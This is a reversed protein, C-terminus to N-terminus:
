RPDAPLQFGSGADRNAQVTAPIDLDAVPIDHHRPGDIVTLTSRTTLYNHIKEPARGDKFILTTAVPEPVNASRVVAAPRQQEAQYPPPQDQPFSYGYAPDPAPAAYPIPPSEAYGPDYGADFPTNLFPYGVYSVAGPFGYALGRVPTGRRIPYRSRVPRGIPLRSGPYFSSRSNASAIPRRSIGSSYHSFNSNGGFSPRSAGSLGRGSFGGRSGGRQASAPLVAAALVLAIAVLRKM